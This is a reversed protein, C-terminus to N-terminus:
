PEHVLGRWDQEELDADNLALPVVVLWDQQLAQAVFSNRKSFSQFESVNVIARGYLLVLVPRAAAAPDYGRLSGVFFRRTVNGM